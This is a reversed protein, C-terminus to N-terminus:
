SMDEPLPAELTIATGTLPHRMAVSAAHLLHRRVGTGFRPAAGYTADGVVPHGLSALQCRIQHTVGTHITVELLTRQGATRVPRYFTEARLPREGSPAGLPTVVRMRGRDGPTHALFGAVGGPRDVRGEVWALYVKRVEHRAFQGRTEQFATETRAALVLGSTGADIRHLLAPMMPDGGIGALEPYRGLMANVLTGAESVDVPHCDQNGPKNFALLAADEYVVDLLGPVAQAREDERERLEAVRLETGLAAREGKACVRGRVSVRGEAFAQAVANRSATPVAELVVRDLRWGVNAETVRVRVRQRM